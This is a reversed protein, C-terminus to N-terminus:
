KLSIEGSLIEKLNRLYLDFFNAKDINDKVTIDIKKIIKNNDKLIFNGVIDGTKVPANIEYIDVEYSINESAEGKKNLSTADEKLILEAYKEKGKNVIGKGIVKNKSMVVNLDYQAYTYDLLETVEKNRTKSDPEGMVVAIVRM